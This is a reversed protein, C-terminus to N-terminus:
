SICLFDDNPQVHGIPRQTAETPFIPTQCPLMHYYATLTLIHSFHELRQKWYSYKWIWLIASTEENREEMIGPQQTKGQVVRQQALVAPLIHVM